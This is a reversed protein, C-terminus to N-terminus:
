GRRPKEEVNKESFFAAFDTYTRDIRITPKGFATTAPAAAFAPSNRTAKFHALVETAHRLYAVQLTTPRFSLQLVHTMEAISNWFCHWGKENVQWNESLCSTGDATPAHQAASSTRCRTSRAFLHAEASM